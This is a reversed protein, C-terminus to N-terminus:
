LFRNIIDAIMQPDPREQANINVDLFIVGKLEDESIDVNADVQANALNKQIGKGKSQAIVKTYQMCAEFEQVPVELDCSWITGIRVQEKQPDADFNQVLLRESLDEEWELFDLSRM